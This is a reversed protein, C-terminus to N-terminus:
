RDRPKGRVPFCCRTPARPDYPQSQKEYIISLKPRLTPDRVGEILRNHFGQSQLEELADLYQMWDEKELYYSSIFAQQVQM